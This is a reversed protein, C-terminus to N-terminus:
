AAAARGHSSLHEAAQGLDLVADVDLVVMLRDALRHVGQTFGQWTAPVNTSGDEFTDSGVALVDGVEDVVLGFADGGVELGAAMLGSRESAPLGLRACLDIAIAVRGRLNVLGMVAKPALPVPTMEGLRFVQRVREIPLGFLQGAVSVSVYERTAGADFPAHSVAM